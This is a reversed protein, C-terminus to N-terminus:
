DDETDGGRYYYNSFRRLEECSFKSRVEDITQNYIEKDFPTKAQEQIERHLANSFKSSLGLARMGKVIGTTGEVLVLFMPAGTGYQFNAEPIKKMESPVLHYSYPLDSWDLFGHVKLLLFIVQKVVLFSLEIKNKRFFQAETDSINNFCFFVFHGNMDYQYYQSEPYSAVGAQYLQGVELKHLYGM